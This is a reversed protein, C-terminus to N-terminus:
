WSIAARMICPKPPAMITGTPRSMRTRDTGFDSSMPAMARIPTGESIPGIMPGSSPPTM